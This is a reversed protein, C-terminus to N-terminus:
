PLSPSSGRIRPHRRKAGGCPGYPLARDARFPGNLRRLAGGRRRPQSDRRGDYTCVRGETLRPTVCRRGPFVRPRAAPPGSAELYISYREAGIVIALAAPGDSNSRMSTTACFYPAEVLCRVRAPSVARHQPAQRDVSDPKAAYLSSGLNLIDGLWVSGGGIWIEVSGRWQRGYAERNRGSRLDAAQARSILGGSNRLSPTTPPSPKCTKVEKLPAM